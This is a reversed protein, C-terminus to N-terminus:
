HAHVVFIKGDSVELRYKRPVFQGVFYVGAYKVYEEFLEENMPTRNVAAEELKPYESDSSM